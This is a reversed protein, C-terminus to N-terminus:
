PRIEIVDRFRVSLVVGGVRDAVDIRHEGFLRQHETISAAAMVLAYARGRAAAADLDALEAGEDDIIDEDNHLHFFYRPM